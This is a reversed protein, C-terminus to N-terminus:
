EVGQDSDDSEQDSLADVGNDLIEDELEGEVVYRYGHETRVLVRKKATSRRARRKVGRRTSNRPLQPRRVTRQVTRRGAVRGQNVVAAQQAMAEAHADAESVQNYVNGPHHHTGAVTLCNAMKEFEKLAKARAEECEIMMINAMAEEDVTNMGEREKLLAARAEEHEHVVAVLESLGAEPCDDLEDSSEDVEIDDDSSGGNDVFRGPDVGVVDDSYSLIGIFDIVCKVTAESSAVERPLAEDPVVNGGTYLGCDVVRGVRSSLAIVLSVLIYQEMPGRGHTLKKPRKTTPTLTSRIMTPLSWDIASHMIEWYANDESTYRLIADGHRRRSGRLVTHIVPNVFKQFFDSNGRLLLRRFCVTVASLLMPSATPAWDDLELAIRVINGINVVIHDACKIADDTLEGGAVKAEASSDDPALQDQYCGGRSSLVEIIIDIDAIRSEMSRKDVGFRRLSEALILACVCWNWTCSRYLNRAGLLPFEDRNSVDFWRMIDGMDVLENPVFASTSLKGFSAFQRASCGDKDYFTPFGGEAVIMLDDSSLPASSTILCDTLRTVMKDVYPVRTEVSNTNM